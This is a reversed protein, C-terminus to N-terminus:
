ESKSPVSHDAIISSRARSHRDGRTGWEAHMQLIGRMRCGWWARMQRGGGDGIRGDCIRGDGHCFFEWNAGVDESGVRRLGAFREPVTQYREGKRRRKTTHAHNRRSVDHLVVQHQADLVRGPRQAEVFVTEAQARDEDEVCPQPRTRGGVTRRGDRGVSGTPCYVVEAV